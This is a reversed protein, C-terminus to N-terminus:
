IEIYNARFSYMLVAIVVYIATIIFLPNVPIPMMPFAFLLPPFWLLMKRGALARQAMPMHGEAQLFRARGEGLFFAAVVLLVFVPLTTLIILYRSVAVIGMERQIFWFWDKVASNMWDAVAALSEQGAAGDEVQARGSSRGFTDARVSDVPVLVDIIGYAADVHSRRRRLTDAANDHVGEEHHRVEVLYALYGEDMDAFGLGIPLVVSVVLWTMLAGLMLFTFGKAGARLSAAQPNDPVVDTM